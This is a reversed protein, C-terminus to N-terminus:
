KKARKKKILKKAEKRYQEGLKEDKFVHVTIPSTKRHMADLYAEFDIKDVEKVKSFPTYWRDKVDKPYYIQAIQNGWVWLDFDTSAIKPTFFIKVGMQPYIKALVLSVPNKNKCLVLWSNKKTAQRLADLEDKSLGGLFYM